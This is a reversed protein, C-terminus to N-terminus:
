CRCALKKKPAWRKRPAWKKASAKGHSVTEYTTTTTTVVAPASQVVIVTAGGPAGYVTAGPPSHYGYSRGYSPGSGYPLAPKAGQRAHGSPVGGYSGGHSAGERGVGGRSWAGRHSVADEAYDVGDDYGDDYGEDYARAVPSGAPGRDPGRDIGVSSYGDFADDDYLPPGNGWDMDYRYDRVVGRRDALVADDHYRYWGHGAYPASLGYAGYNSILYGSNFYAPPLAFGRFPRTYGVHYGPRAFHHGPRGPRGMGAQHLVQQPRAGQWGSQGRGGAAPRAVGGARPAADPAAAVPAALLAAGAVLGAFGLVRM